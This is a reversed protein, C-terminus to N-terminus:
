GKRNVEIGVIKGSIVLQDKSMHMLELGAGRVVVAGFGVNVSVYQSCYQCVGFHREILVRGEGLLEVVPQGPLPEGPLETFAPFGAPGRKGRRM